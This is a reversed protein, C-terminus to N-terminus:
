RRCRRRGRHHAGALGAFLQDQNEEFTLLRLVQRRGLGLIEAAANATLRQHELDRLVDLRALENDSMIRVTVGFV